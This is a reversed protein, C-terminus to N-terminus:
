VSLNSLSFTLGTNTVTDSSQYTQPSVMDCQCHSRDDKFTVNDIFGSGAMWRLPSICNSCCQPLMENTLLLLFFYHADQYISLSEELM